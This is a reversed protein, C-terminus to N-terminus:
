ASFGSYLALSFLSWFLATDHAASCKGAQPYKKPQYETETGSEKHGGHFAASWAGRDKVTELLKSLNMDMSDTISDLWRMRQQGKRRKGETKGLMLMRELSDTVEESTSDTADTVSNFTISSPFLFSSSAVAETTTTSNGSILFIPSTSKLPFCVLNKNKSIYPKLGNYSIDYNLKHM